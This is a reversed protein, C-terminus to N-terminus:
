KANTKADIIKLKGYLNPSFLNIDKWISVLLVSSPVRANKKKNLREM